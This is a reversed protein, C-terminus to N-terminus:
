NNRRSLKVPFGHKMYLLISSSPKIPHGEVAQIQYNHIITAAVMKMQIFAMEKGICSRPGANFAPFKFSPEHKIRGRDSIWREPKFEMCDRGWISEMRGMAYFSLIVKSNADILLGSPLVDSKLPSKHQWPVPPFLRLAERLAGHLYVLKSSDEVNFYRCNKSDKLLKNEIEERIKTEASPNKALLWFLWSLTISTTDRGAFMLNMLVDRILLLNSDGDDPARGLERQYAEMLAPLCDFGGSGSNETKWNRLKEQKSRICPYVFQEDIDVWASRSLIKETGIGVWKLYKWCSEPVVHRYLLAEMVDSLAKQYRIDPLHISLSCPDHDLLLLCFSDFTFRQFIDQLDTCAGRESFSDLVPILGQEVKVMLTRELATRFDVHNMLSMTIKRHIEWLQADANFIGDGLIDFIKRFEPGKPYNSFNKSLIHHIDSPDCTFAMDINASCPGRFMFTGGCEQLVETIYDHPRHFNKLIATMMGIVPWYKPVCTKKVAWIKRLSYYLFFFSSFFFITLAGIQSESIAM